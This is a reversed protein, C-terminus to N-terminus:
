YEIKLDLRVASPQVGAIVSIQERATALIDAITFPQRDASATDQEEAGTADVDISVGERLLDVISYVGIPAHTEALGSGVSAAIGRKDRDLNIWMGFNDRVKLGASRRAAYAADFHRRVEEASFEYVEVNRPDDRDDVAAVFVLNVNDLTKFRTGGSLPPFAFWRDQTTRFSATLKKGDKDVDWV